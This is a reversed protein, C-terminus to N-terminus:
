NNTTRKQLQSFYKQYIFNHIAEIYEAKHKKLHCVHTSKEWRKGSVDRGGDAHPNMVKDEIFNHKVYFDNKSYLFLEPWKQDPRANRISDACNIGEMESVEPLKGVLARAMAPFYRTQIFRAEATVAEPYSMGDRRCSVWYAIILATAKAMTFKPREGPCSDMVMGRVDLQLGRQRQSIDLGQNVMLGTDSLVHIFVPRDALGASVVGDLLKETLYPVQNTIEFIFRTPLNYSLTLCGAQRYIDTYKELNKKNAGAWGFVFVLPRDSDKVGQFRPDTVTRSDPPEFEPYFKFDKFYEGSTKDDLSPYDPPPPPQKSKNETTSLNHGEKALPATTFNPNSLSFLNTKDQNFKVSASTSIQHSRLVPPPSAKLLSTKWKTAKNTPIHKHPTTAVFGNKVVQGLL